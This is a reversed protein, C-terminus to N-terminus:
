SPVETVNVVSPSPAAAPVAVVIQRVYNDVELESETFTMRPVLAMALDMARAMM